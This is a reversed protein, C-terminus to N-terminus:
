EIEPENMNKILAHYYLSGKKASEARKGGVKSEERWDVIM